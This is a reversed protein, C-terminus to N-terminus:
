EIAVGVVSRKRATLWVTAHKQALIIQKETMQPDMEIRMEDRLPSNDRTAILMWKYGQVPLKPNGKGNFDIDALYLYAEHIDQEYCAVELYRRAKTFNQPVRYGEAYFSGIVYAALAHRGNAARRYLPFAKDPFGEDELVKAKEYNVAANRKTEMVAMPM